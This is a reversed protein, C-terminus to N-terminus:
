APCAIRERVLGLTRAAAARVEANPDGESMEALRPLAARADLALWERMAAWRTHFARDRTADAFRPGADARQMRRLFGLLMETRSAGEDASAVRALPGDTRYERMLPAAEARITAVLLVLDSRAGGLLQAQIRGDCRYVAGDAPAIPPLPRCPLATGASFAPTVPEALWRRLTAGGAKAYCTVSVQGAFIVTEPPPQAALAAADIVSATIALAPCDFLTAGTRVGDRSQRFPPEFFPDAALADALPALLTGVWGTDAFLREAREAIPDARDPCDAFARALARYEGGERWRRATEASGARGAVIASRVAEPIM